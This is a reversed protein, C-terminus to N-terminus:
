FHELTLNHHYNCLEIFYVSFWQSTCKLCTFKVTHLNCVYLFPCCAPNPGFAMTQWERIQVDAVGHVLFFKGGCMTKSKGRHM